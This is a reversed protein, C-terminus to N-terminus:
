GRRVVELPTSFDELKVQVLDQGLGICALVSLQDITAMRDNCNLPVGSLLQRNVLAKESTELLGM